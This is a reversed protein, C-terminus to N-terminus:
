VTLWAVTLSTVNLGAHLLICYSLNRTKSYLYGLALSFFFIPVPDTNIDPFSVELAASIGIVFLLALICWGTNAFFHPRFFPESGFLCESLKMNRMAMLYYIGLAFILLSSITMTIFLVYLVYIHMAGTIGGHLLAFLLSVAVVAVGSAGPLNLQLLKSELWGQLFLRFLLEEILPAAIVITIFLLMFVFPSKKSQEVMQYVGHGHHKEEKQQVHIEGSEQVQIQIQPSPTNHGTAAGTIGAAVGCVMQAAFWLALFLLVDLGTWPIAHKSSENSM